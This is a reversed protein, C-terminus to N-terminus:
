HAPSLQVLIPRHDSGFTDYNQVVRMGSVRWNTTLMVHDIPASLLAPLSTPWTGLAANHSAVAADRCDGITMGPTSALGSYHDITSNFDGVMLINPGSCATKLWALDGRWHVLEDALPAVAHVAIITPGTGDLPTAVISPLVSTTKTAPDIAYSGLSTSILLTTSRAKSVHDYAVTWVQMPQGADNMLAAVAVGTAATTEPLAIVKAKEDVAITAIDQAHVADGLTNWELVTLTKANPTEFGGNGFGRNALVAVNLLSYVFFLLALSGALRRVSRYTIALLALGLVILMAVISSLARLSVVEAIVYSREVGFLQPWAFILLAVAVIVLLVAALVRRIMAM